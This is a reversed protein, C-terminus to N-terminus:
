YSFLIIRYLITGSLCIVPDIKVISCCCREISLHQLSHQRVKGGMETVWGGNIGIAPLGPQGYFVGPLRYGSDQAHLGSRDEKGASTRFTVVRSNRSGDPIESATM